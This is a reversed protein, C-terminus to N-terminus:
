VVAKPILVDNADFLPRRSVWTLDPFKQSFDRAEIPVLIHFFVFKMLRLLQHCPVEELLVILKYSKLTLEMMKKINQQGHM